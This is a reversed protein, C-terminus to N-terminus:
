QSAKLTIVHSSIIHVYLLIDVFSCLTAILVHYALLVIMALSVLL